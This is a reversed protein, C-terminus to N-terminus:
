AFLLRYGMGKDKLVNKLAVQEKGVFYNRIQEKLKTIM